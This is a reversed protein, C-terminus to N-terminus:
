TLIMALPFRTDRGVRISFPMIKMGPKLTCSTLYLRYSCKTQNKGRMTLTRGVNTGVNMFNATVQVALEFRVISPIKNIYQECIRSSCLDM